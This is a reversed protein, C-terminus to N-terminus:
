DDVVVQHGSPCVGLTCDYFGEDVIVDLDWHTQCYSRQCDPCFFPAAEWRIVRLAVPDPHEDALLVCLRRYQPQTLSYWGNGLFGSVVVGASGIAQASLPPGIDVAEDAAAPRVTGAPQGCVACAFTTM